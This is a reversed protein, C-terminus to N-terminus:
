NTYYMYSVIEHLIKSDRSCKMEKKCHLWTQRGLLFFLFFQRRRFNNRLLWGLLNHFGNKLHWTTLRPSQFVIFFFVKRSFESNWQFEPNGLEPGPKLPYTCLSTKVFNIAKKRLLRLFQCFLFFASFRAFFDSFRVEPKTTCIMWDHVSIEYKTAM